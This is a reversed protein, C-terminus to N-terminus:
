GAARLREFVDRLLDYHEQFNKGGIIIDDMYIAIGNWKLGQMNDAM